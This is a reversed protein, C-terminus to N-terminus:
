KTDVTSDYKYFLISTNGYVKELEKSMTYEAALGTQVEAAEKTACEVILLSNAIARVHILNQVAPLVLGKFYPPDLFVVDFQEIPGVHMIDAHFIGYFSEPFGLRKARDRIQSAVHFDKEVFAVYRAGLALAQFGFAGTGAFGDL